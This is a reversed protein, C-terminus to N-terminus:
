HLASCKPHGGGFDDNPLRVQGDRYGVRHLIRNDHIWMWLGNFMAQDAFIAAALLMYGDGETCFEAGGQPMEDNGFKRFNNFTIYPVGCHTGGDYRCRHSMIEYAERGTKEMDAHTVGEANYKALTKGVKYELFQPYPFTPNGSNINVPVYSASSWTRQQAQVSVAGVFGLM